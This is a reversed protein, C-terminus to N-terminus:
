MPLASRLTRAYLGPAKRRSEALADRLARTADETIGSGHGVLIRAPNFEMLKRSPLLRLMPHVGLREDRGLFYDATGVTEPVVLVGTEDNYLAAEKWAFNDVLKHMTYGTAGLERDFTTVPADLDDEVDAMFAPIHVSVDHRRAIKAADRKHRDLLVVVGAVTGRDAIFEDLGAVDIPDVLWVEGDVVLAHSARQMTEDPDAIWTVGGEFEDLANWDPYLDAEDSAM